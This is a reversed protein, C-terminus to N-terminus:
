AMNLCVVFNELEIASNAIRNFQRFERTSIQM